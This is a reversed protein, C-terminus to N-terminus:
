GKYHPDLVLFMVPPEKSVDTMEADEHLNDLDQLGVRIDVGLITHAYVDGGIMVPTGHTLFHTRLVGAQSILQVGESVNVIKCDISDNTFYSICMAVEVAGIWQNSGVFDKPKDGMTVLAQQIQQHSPITDGNDKLGNVGTYSSNIILHSLLTQM